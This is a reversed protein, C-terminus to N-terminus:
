CCAEDGEQFAGASTGPRACVRACDPEHSRGRNPSQTGTSYLRNFLWAFVFSHLGTLHCHHANSDTALMGEATCTAAAATIQVVKAAAAAAAVVVVVVFRGVSVGVGLLARARRSENAWLDRM